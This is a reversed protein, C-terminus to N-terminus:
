GIQSVPRVVASPKKVALTPEFRPFCVEGVVSRPSVRATMVVVAVNASMEEGVSSTPVRAPVAPVGAFGLCLVVLSSFLCSSGSPFPSFAGSQFAATIKDKKKRPHANPRPLSTVQSEHKNNM